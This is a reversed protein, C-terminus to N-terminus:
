SVDTAPRRYRWHLVLAAVAAGASASLFLHTATLFAPGLLLPLPVGLGVTVPLALGAAFGVIAGIGTGVIARGLPVRRLLGFGIAPGLLLGFTAGFAGGLALTGVFDRLGAFGGMSSIFGVALVAGTLAGGAAGLATVILM